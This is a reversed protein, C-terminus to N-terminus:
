ERPCGQKVVPRLRGCPRHIGRANRVIASLANLFREAAKEEMVFWGTFEDRRARLM